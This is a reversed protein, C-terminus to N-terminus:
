DSANNNYTQNLKELLKMTTPNLIKKAKAMKYLYQKLIVDNQKTEDEFMNIYDNCVQMLNPNKAQNDKVYVALGLCYFGCNTSDLDQIIYNNYFYKDYKLKLFSAIENPPDVGYSDFYMVATDNGVSCTWHTGLSTKVVPNNKSDLNYIYFGENTTIPKLEDKLYIGKCKIHFLKCLQKLEQDSLM